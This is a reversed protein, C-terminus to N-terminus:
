TTAKRENILAADVRMSATMAKEYLVALLLKVRNSANDIDAERLCFMRLEPDNQIQWLIQQVREANTIPLLDEPSLLGCLVFMESKRINLFASLRDMKDSSLGSFRRAGNLLSSLYIYSLNLETAAQQVTMKKNDLCTRIADALPKETGQNNSKM